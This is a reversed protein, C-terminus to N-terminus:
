LAPTRKLQEALERLLSLVQGVNEIRHKANTSGAGVKITVHNNLNLADFMDEDTRDDGIAIVLDYPHAMSLQKAVKGKDTDVNKIEVVKNGDLVRLQYPLLHELTNILERSRLFGTESDANRYHWALSYDKEEVFSAPCRSVFDNLFPRVVEKWSGDDLIDNRWHNGQKLYSGHEAVMDIPLQGLWGDLTDHDRGSIVVVKNGASTALLKLVEIVEESPSALEPRPAFASLTGDYDLLLLRSKAEAFRNLLAQKRAKKLLGPQTQKQTERTQVLDNMFSNAWKEVDYDAIRKQMIEMRRTQEEPEMELALKLKEAVEFEDLPNILLAEGLENAAGTMESLLLVGQQDKRTAIFEKAVLNMGDRIPTILAVDCATYLAVLQPFSLSAYRYMIPLWTLTGYKGNIRGVAQEIMQKREWYRKIEDRSPVVVLIFVIKGQWEPNEQLFADLADLRQMVGKTYDLRDVSFIIKQDKYASKLEIREQIVKEDSYADNFLSYNIGIPYFNSQVLREQYFIKWLKHQMGLALQVSQLFHITYDTTHFGVLDAGLLGTLLYDRCKAPLLRLLEYSPFPIHLFFGITASAHRERILQPLHLFHYDHVWIIDDPQIVASVVACVAENATQYAELYENRYDVYSPFYHFLPWLVSNAFGNYFDQNVQKDLFVPVFEFDNDEVLYKNKEWIRQTFDACGIWVPKQSYGSLDLSKVATVLGGASAKVTTTRNQTKFSFPLRYSIIILRNNKM